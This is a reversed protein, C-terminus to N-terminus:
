KNVCNEICQWTSLSISIKNPLTAHEMMKSSRRFVGLLGGLGTGEARSDRVLYDMHERGDIECATESKDVSMLSCPMKHFDNGRVVKHDIGFAVLVADRIVGGFVASEAKITVRLKTSKAPIRFAKGELTHTEFTEAHFEKWGYKPRPPPPANPVIAAGATQQPGAQAPVPSSSSKCGVLALVLLSPLILPHKM